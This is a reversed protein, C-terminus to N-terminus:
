LSVYNNEEKFTGDPQEEAKNAQHMSYTYCDMQKQIAYVNELDAQNNCLTRVLVWVRSTPSKIEKMDEPISDKFENGTFIFTEVDNEFTSADLVTICNSYADMVEVTCFRDTKPFEMIVADDELSLFAQSYITDVNPTVVDKFSADVLNTAHFLQNEPAQENTVKVTNTSKTATADMVLLPLCFMFADQLLEQNAETSVKPKELEGASNNEQQNGCGSLTMSFLATATFTAILRKKM